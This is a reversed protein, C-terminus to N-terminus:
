TSKLWKPPVRDQLRDSLYEQTQDLKVIEQQIQWYDKTDSHTSQAIEILADRMEIVAAREEEFLQQISIHEEM